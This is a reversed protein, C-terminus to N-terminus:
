VNKKEILEDDLKYLGNAIEAFVMVDKLSMRAVDNDKLNKNFIKILKKSAKVVDERNGDIGKSAEEFDSLYLPSITLSELNGGGLLAIPNRLKMIVNENEFSIRGMCVAVRLNILTQGVSVETDEELEHYDIYFDNISKVAIETAVLYKSM